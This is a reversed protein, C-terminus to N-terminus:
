SSLEPQRTLPSYSVGQWRQASRAASPPLSSLAAFLYFGAGLDFVTASISAVTLTAVVAHRSANCLAAEFADTTQQTRPARRFLQLLFLAYLTAGFVGLNSLLTVVFSSTLVSGIGLGLGYSDLFNGWAATNWSGRELGSQSDLKQLVTENFFAGLRGMIPLDAVLMLEMISLLLPVTAFVWALRPAARGRAARRFLAITLFSFYIALGAYATGSTSFMLSLLSAGAAFGARRTMTKDLWLQFTFAFLGLSVASFASTEPFTGQIRPLSGWVQHTTAYATRVVDLMSPMGSYFEVVNLMAAAINLMTVAVVAQAFLQRRQQGRMLVRGSAFTLVSGLAYATQTLNGSVPAFPVLKYTIGSPGRSLAMVDMDGAMMRPVFAALVAGWLVAVGLCFTAKSVVLTQGTRRAEALAQYWLFPLFLNPVTITAGGLAAARVATTGGLVLLLVQTYLARSGNATLGLLVVLCAFVIDTM